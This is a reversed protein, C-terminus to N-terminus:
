RLAAAAKAALPLVRVIYDEDAKSSLLFEAKSNLPSSSLAELYKTQNASGIAKLLDFEVALVDNRTIVRRAANNMHALRGSREVFFIATAVEDVADRLDAVQKIGQALARNIQYAKQMHPILLRTRSREEENFYPQDASRSMYFLNAKTAAKSILALLGDGLGLAAIYQKYYRTAEYEPRAVLDTPNCLDGVRQTMMMPVRLPNSFIVHRRYHDLQEESSKSGLVHESTMIAFDEEFLMANRADFHDAIEQLVETWLEPSLAADYLRGILDVIERPVSNEDSHTRTDM